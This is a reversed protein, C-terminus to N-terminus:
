AAMIEQRWDLLIEVLRDAQEMVMIHSGPDIEVYKGLGGRALDAPLRAIAPPTSADQAGGVALVPVELSSQLEKTVDFAALARWSAAWHAVHIRRVCTRAYRVM